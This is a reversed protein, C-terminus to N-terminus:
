DPQGRARDAEGHAARDDENEPEPAELDAPRDVGHEASEELEAEAQEFGESTGEGAEALPREAEDVPRGEDDVPPMGPDGGISGADREARETERRVVDDEIPPKQERETM